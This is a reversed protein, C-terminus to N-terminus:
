RIPWNALLEDTAPNEIRIEDIRTSIVCIPRQEVGAPQICRVPGYDRDVRGTIRLRFGLSADFADPSVRKVIEFPRGDRSLGGSTDATFQAIALTQGPLTVPETGSPSAQVVSSPCRENSTWPRAIWFGDARLGKAAEFDWDEGNWAVPTVSIRLAKTTEDYRWRMPQTSGEESPGACGFPLLLEFRRGAASTVNPPLPNGSARADAAEQALAILDARQLPKPAEVRVPMPPQPAPAPVVQEVRPASARGLFFGAGGVGLVAVLGAAIALRSTRISPERM